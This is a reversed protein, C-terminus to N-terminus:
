RDISRNFTISRHIISAISSFCHDAHDTISIISTSWSRRSRHDIFFCDITISTIPLRHFFPRDRDIHNIISSFILSWSRHSQHDINKTGILISWSYNIISRNLDKINILDSPSIITFFNSIFLYLMSWDIVLYFVADILGIVSWSIIGFLYLMSWDILFNIVDDIMDIMSWQIKTHPHNLRDSRDYDSHDTSWISRSRNLRGIVDILDISISRYITM